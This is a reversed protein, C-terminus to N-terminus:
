PCRYLFAGNFEIPGILIQAFERRAQHLQLIILSPADGTLQVVAHPLHEGRQPHVKGRHSGVDFPERLEGIRNVVTRSQYLFETSLDARNGVQKMWRQQIFGSKSRSEMPIDLSEGFPALNFHIQLDWLIKPPEPALRFRRNEPGHLLTEGINMAM